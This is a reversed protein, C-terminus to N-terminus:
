YMLWYILLVYRTICFSSPTWIWIMIAYITRFM